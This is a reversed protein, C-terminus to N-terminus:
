KLYKERVVNMHHIEHGITAQLFELVTLEFKWAKGKLKLQEPTLLKIFSLTSKRVNVFDNLVDCYPHHDFTSHDVFLNQDYGSLLTSDQRSFRLARYIMVREHDTIHGIIQKISWKGPAYRFCAQEESLSHLLKFNDESQFLLNIDKGETLSIYYPFGSEVTLM